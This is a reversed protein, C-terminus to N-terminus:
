VLSAYYRVVSLLVRQPFATSLMILGQREDYEFAKMWDHFYQPLPHPINGRLIIREAFAQMAVADDQTLDVFLMTSQDIRM